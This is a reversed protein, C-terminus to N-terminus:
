KCFKLRKLYIVFECSFLFVDNPRIRGLLTWTRRSVPGLPLCAPGNLLGPNCTSKPLTQPSKQLFFSLPPRSQPNIRSFNSTKKQLFVVGRVSQATWAGSGVAPFPQRRPWGWQGAKPHLNWIYLSSCWAGKPHGAKVLEDSFQKM